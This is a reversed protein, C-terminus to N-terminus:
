DNTLDIVEAENRSPIFMQINCTNTTDESSGAAEETVVDANVDDQCDLKDEILGDVNHLNVVRKVYLSSDTSCSAKMGNNCRTEGTITAAPEVGRCIQIEVNDTSRKIAADDRREICKRKKEVNDQGRSHTVLSWDLVQQCAPCEGKMETEGGKIDDDEEKDDYLSRFHDALCTLHCCMDCERYYCEVVVVEEEKKEDGQLQQNTARDSAELEVLQEDCIWCKRGSKGMVQMDKAAVFSRFSQFERTEWKVGGM